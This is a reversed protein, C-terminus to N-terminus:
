IVMNIFFFYKFVKMRGMNDGMIIIECYNFCVVVFVIEGVDCFIWFGVFCGYFLFLFFYILFFNVM